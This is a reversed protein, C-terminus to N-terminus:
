QNKLLTDFSRKSSQEAGMHVSMNLSVNAISETVKLSQDVLQQYSMQQTTLSSKFFDLNNVANQLIVDQEHMLEGIVSPGHTVSDPASITSANNIDADMLANFQDGLRQQNADSQFQFQTQSQLTLRQNMEDQMQVFLDQLDGPGKKSVKTAGDVKSLMDIVGPDM